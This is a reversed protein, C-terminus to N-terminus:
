KLQGVASVNAEAESSKDDFRIPVFRERANGLLSFALKARFCKEASMLDTVQEILNIKGMKSLTAVPIPHIDEMAESTFGLLLASDSKCYGCNSCGNEGPCNCPPWTYYKMWCNCCGCCNDAM